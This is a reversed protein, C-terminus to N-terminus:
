RISTLHLYEHEVISAESIILAAHRHCALKRCILLWASQSSANRAVSNFWSEHGEIYM